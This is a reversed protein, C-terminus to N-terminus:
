NETFTNQTILFEITKDRLMTDFIEDKHSEKVYSVDKKLEAAIKEAYKDFLRAKEDDTLAIGEKQIIAMIVLEAKALSKAENEVDTEDLGLSVLLEDYTLGATKAMTKYKSITQSKFYSLLSDPYEVIESGELVLEWIADGRGEGIGRIVTLGKYEPLKVTELLYTAELEPAEIYDVNDDDGVRCSVLCLLTLIAFFLALFRKMIKRLYVSFPM